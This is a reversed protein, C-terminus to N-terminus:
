EELLVETTPSYHLGDGGIRLLDAEDYAMGSGLGGMTFSPRVVMPYGLEEAAALLEDESHCIRSRASEGGVREVVDKFQQRDEAKQIAELSAGILVVGYQDLLRREPLAVAAHLATQRGLTPLIADPREAAINSRIVDPDIPEIYTADAIGPDTMITAPNSNVLIVRLGEERLVRCAQTGSYDFEPAQGLVIPGSGIGLVSTLATRRPM